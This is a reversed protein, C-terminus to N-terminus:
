AVLDDFERLLIRWSSEHLYRPDWVAPLFILEEGLTELSYDVAHLDHAEHSELALYVFHALVRADQRGLMVPSITDFDPGSPVPSYAVVEDARSRAGGGPSLECGSSTAGVTDSASGSRDGEDVDVLHPRVATEMRFGRGLDLAPQVESLSVGLRQVVPRALSFAPVFFYAPAPLVLRRIRAWASDASSSVSADVRWVALYRVPGSVALETTVSATLPFFPALGDESPEYARGCM